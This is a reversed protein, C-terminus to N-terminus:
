PSGGRGRSTIAGNCAARDLMMGHTVKYQTGGPCVQMQFTGLCSKLNAHAKQIAM